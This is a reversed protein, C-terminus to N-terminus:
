EIKVIHQEDESKETKIQPIELNPQIQIQQNELSVRPRPVAVLIRDEKPINTRKAERVEGGMLKKQRQKARYRRTRERAQAKHREYLDLNNPLKLLEM